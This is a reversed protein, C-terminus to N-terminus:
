VLTEMKTMTKQANEKLKELEYEQEARENELKKRAKKEAIM